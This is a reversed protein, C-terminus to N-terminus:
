VLNKMEFRFFFLCNIQFFFNDVANKFILTFELYFWWPNRRLNSVAVDLFKYESTTDQDCMQLYVPISFSIDWTVGPM